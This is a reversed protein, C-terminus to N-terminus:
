QWDSGKPPLKIEGECCSLRKKSCVNGGLSEVVTAWLPTKGDRCIRRGCHSVSHGTSICEAHEAAKACAVCDTRITVAATALGLLLGATLLLKGFVCSRKKPAPSAEEIFEIGPTRATAPATVDEGCYKCTKMDVAIDEACAPCRRIMRKACSPCTQQTPDVKAKCFPCSLIM